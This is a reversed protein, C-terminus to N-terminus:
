AAALKLLGDERLNAVFRQGVVSTKKVFIAPEGLPAPVRLRRGAVWTVDGYVKGTWVHEWLEGPPFYVLVRVTRPNLVPAVLIESGVLFQQYTIRRVDPDKPYHLFLHRVVPLGRSAGEKVLQVRYFQWAKYLRACRNFHSYTLSNSYFQCNASPQNGEHTRFLVTFANLEMWRFLLDQSRQYNIIPHPVTTYGGIDSHNFAFGSLGSSLLATVASKIGDHRQWSVMQDGAWFLTCHRPSGRYGSRM